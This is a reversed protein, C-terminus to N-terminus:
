SRHLDSFTFEIEPLANRCWAMERRARIGSDGRLGQIAYIFVAMKVADIVGESLPWLYFQFSILPPDATGSISIYHSLAQLRWETASHTRAKAAALTSM